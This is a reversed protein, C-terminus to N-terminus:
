VSGLDFSAPTRQMTSTLTSSPNLWGKSGGQDKEKGNGRVNTEQDRCTVRALSKPHDCGPRMEMKGSAKRQRKKYRTELM